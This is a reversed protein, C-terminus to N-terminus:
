ITEVQKEVKGCDRSRTSSILCYLNVSFLYSSFFAFICSLILFHDPTPFTRSILSCHDTSPPSESDLPINSTPFISLSLSCFCSYFLLQYIPFLFHSTLPSFHPHSYSYTLTLTLPKSFYLIHSILLSIHSFSFPFQPILANPSQFFICFLFHLFFM